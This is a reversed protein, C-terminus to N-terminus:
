FQRMTLGPAPRAATEASGAGANLRRVYQDRMTLLIKSVYNVTERIRPVRGAGRVRGEGANYAALALDFRGFDDLLSRLYRAGGRMNELPDWADLVGLRRARDPMLQALGIAGRPSLAVPNYRSEQTLLADFLPVPVGADCAANAM